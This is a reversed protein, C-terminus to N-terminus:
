ESEAHVWMSIEVDFTSHPRSVWTFISPIGL